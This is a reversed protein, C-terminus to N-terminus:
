LGLFRDVKSGGYISVAYMLAFTLVLITVVIVWARWSVIEVVKVVKDRQALLSSLTELVCSTELYSVRAYLSVQAM